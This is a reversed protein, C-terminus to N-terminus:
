SILSQKDWTCAKNSPNLIKNSTHINMSEKPLWWQAAELCKVHLYALNENDTHICCLSLGSLLLHCASLPEYYKAANRTTEAVHQVQVVVLLGICCEVLQVNSAYSYCPSTPVGPM